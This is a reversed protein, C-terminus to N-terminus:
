LSGMAVAVLGNQGSLRNISLGRTGLLFVNAQELGLKCFALMTGAAVVPLYFEGRGEPGLGRSILVSAGFGVVSMLARLLLTEASDSVISRGDGGKGPVIM